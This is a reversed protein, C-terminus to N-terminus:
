KVAIKKNGHIYIGPRSPVGEVKTGDLKYYSNEQNSKSVIEERIGTSENFEKKASDMMTVFDNCAHLYAYITSAVLRGAEVDSQWNYGTIVRSQGYQYARAFLEEASESNIESLVM